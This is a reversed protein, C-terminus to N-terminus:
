KSPNTISFTMKRSAEYERVQSMGDINLSHVPNSTGYVGYSSTPQKNWLKEKEEMSFNKESNVQTIISQLKMQAKADQSLDEEYSPQKKELTTDLNEISIPFKGSLQIMEIKPKEENKNQSDECLANKGTFFVMCLLFTIKNKM